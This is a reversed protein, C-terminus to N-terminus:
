PTCNIIVEHSYGGIEENNLIYIASYRRSEPEGLQLLPRVDMFPSISARHLLTWETDGERMSYINVGDSNYKSFNIVVVGDALDKGNLEPYSVSLDLSINKGAIDLYAGLGESYTPQSKIRHSEARVLNIVDDCCDNKDAAAQKAQSAVNNFQKIKAHFDAKAATLVALDAANIKNNASIQALFLDFWDLFENDAVPIFDSM